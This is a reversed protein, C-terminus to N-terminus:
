PRFRLQAPKAWAQGVFNTARVLRTSMEYTPTTFPPRPATDFHINCMTRIYVAGDHGGDAMACGCDM